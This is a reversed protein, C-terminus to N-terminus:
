DKTNGLESGKEIMSAVMHNLELAQKNTIVPNGTTEEIRERAANAASGGAKAVAKNEDLGIPKTQKSIETTAAEAVM